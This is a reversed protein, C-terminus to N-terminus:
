KGPLTTPSVSPAATPAPALMSTLMKDFFEFSQLDAVTIETGDPRSFVAFPTKMQAFKQRLREDTRLDVPQITCERYHRDRLRTVLETEQLDGQHYFILQPFVPAERAVLAAPKSADLMTSLKEAQQEREAQRQAQKSLEQNRSMFLCIVVIVVPYIVMRPSLRRYWPRQLEESMIHLRGGRESSSSEESSM